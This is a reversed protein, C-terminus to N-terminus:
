LVTPDNWLLDVGFPSKGVEGRLISRNKTLNYDWNLYTNRVFKVAKHGISKQSCVDLTTLFSM